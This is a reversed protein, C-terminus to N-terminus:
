SEDAADSTYLLCHINKNNDNKSKTIYITTPAASIAPRSGALSRLGVCNGRAVSFDKASGYRQLTDKMKESARVLFTWGRLDSTVCREGGVWGEVWAAM